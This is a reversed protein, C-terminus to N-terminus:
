GDFRPLREKREKWKVNTTSLAHVSVICEPPIRNPIVFEIEDTGVGIRPKWGYDTWESLLSGIAQEHPFRVILDFGSQDLSKTTIMREDNLISSSGLDRHKVVADVYRRSDPPWVEFIGRIPFSSVPVRFVVAMPRFGRSYYRRFLWKWQSTTSTPTTVLMAGNDFGHEDIIGTKEMFTKQTALLLPVCYVGRGRRGARSPSIGDKKIRSIADRPALHVFLM